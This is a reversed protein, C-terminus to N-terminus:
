VAGPRGQIFVVVASAVPDEEVVANFLISNHNRRPVTLHRVTCGSGQLALHFREAMGALLPLDKEANVLLFPPLGPRVQHLPSADKCFEPDDGFVPGFIDGTLPIGKGLRLGAESPSEGRIPLVADAHFADRETGGLKVRVPGSPIEYVGSVAVVGKIAETNLGVEKLYRPDTALLAVLHGGASHGVLFIRGPDGGLGAINRHTWAVARAVDQVHAPHRVKSSLRYNPLVAGIGQGALFRGVSSYLGCCRNDGIMWAGGHVLVVVPFDTRDGPLFLDLTHRADAGNGDVYAVDRVERVSPSPASQHKSEPVSWLPLDTVRCGGALVLLLVLGARFTPSRFATM